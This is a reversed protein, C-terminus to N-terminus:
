RGPRPQPLAIGDIEKPWAIAAAVTEPPTPGPIDIPEIEADAESGVSTEACAQEGSGDPVATAPTVAAVVTPKVAPTPIKGTVVSIAPAGLMVQVADRQVQEGVLLDLVQGGTAKKKGAAKKKKKEPKDDTSRSLAAYAVGDQAASGSQLLLAEATPKKARKCYGEEPLAGPDSPRVLTALKQVGPLRGARAFGKDLLGAAAVARDMGSAAGLVVAIITRGDRKASAIMNFGSNCIYGTKMGTAGPYRELLANASRLRRKGFRIASIGYLYSFEPYEKMLAGALVAMDRATTVHTDDPLGHPNNFHSRSMGLRKAQFNMEALFAEETGSVTEGVAVAIDNASKVMVMKLANDLTMRTGVEFGMKSPPESLANATVVVPHQLTLRGHSLARFTVYATMLKTISAPYWPRFADKQDIVDGSQLDFVLYAAPEAKPTAPAFLVAVAFATVSLSPFLKM